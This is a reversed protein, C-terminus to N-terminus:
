RDCGSQKQSGSETKSGCLAGRSRPATYIRPQDLVKDRGIADEGLFADEVGVPVDTDAVRAIRVTIQHGARERRSQHGLSMMSYSRSELGISGFSRRLTISRNM